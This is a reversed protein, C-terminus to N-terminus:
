LNARAANQAVATVIEALHSSPLDHGMGDIMLLQAEPIAAATAEGGSRDIMEDDSGHVVLTPAKVTALEETRDDAALVAAVQRASGMSHHGRRYSDIAVRRELEEDIAEEPGATVRRQAVRQAVADDEGRAAPRLLVSLARNSAQGVSRRGTSGMASCLSRVRDPSRLAVLQAVMAGMSVGFLHAREISLADLLGTADDALDELGYALRSKDRRLARLLDPPGADDLVSSRGVDRADYAIVDFGADELLTIFASPWGILQMGLGAILLLPAGEPRHRREVCLKLEGVEVVRETRTSLEGGAAPPSM